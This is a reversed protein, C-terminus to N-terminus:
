SFSTGPQADITRTALQLARFWAAITSYPLISKFVPSLICGQVYWKKPFLSFCFLHPSPFPTTNLCDKLVSPFICQLKWHTQKMKTKGTWIYDCIHQVAFYNWTWNGSSHLNWPRQFQSSMFYVHRVLLRLDLM